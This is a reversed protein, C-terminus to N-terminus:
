GFHLWKRLILMYHFFFLLAMIPHHFSIQFFVIPVKRPNINNTKSAINTLSSCAAHQRSHLTLSCMNALSNCSSSNYFKSCLFIAAELNDRLYLADFPSSGYPILYSSSTLRVVDDIELNDPLCPTQGCPCSLGPQLPWGACPVCTHGAPDPATGAVCQVCQVRGLLQGNMNHELRIHGAACAQGCGGTHCRICQRGDRTAEHGPPCQSCEVRSGSSTLIWGRGCECEGTVNSVLAGAGCQDCSLSVSNYSEVASCEQRPQYQMQNSELSLSLSICSSLILLLIM